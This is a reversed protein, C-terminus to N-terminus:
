VEGDKVGSNIAFTSVYAEDNVEYEIDIYIGQFDEELYKEIEYYYSGDEAVNLYDEYILAEEKSYLTDGVRMTIKAQGQFDQNELRDDVAKMVKFEIKGKGDILEVFPVDGEIKGATIKDIGGIAKESLIDFEEKKFTRVIASREEGEVKVMLKIDTTSLNRKEEELPKAFKGTALFFLVVVIAFSWLTVFVKKGSTMEM